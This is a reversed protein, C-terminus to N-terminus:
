EEDERKALSRIFDILKTLAQATGIQCSNVQLTADSTEGTFDGSAWGEKLVELDGELTSLLARTCPHEKWSHMEDRSIIELNEDAIQYLREAREQPNM